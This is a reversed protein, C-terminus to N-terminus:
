RGSAGLKVDVQAWFQIGGGRLPNMAYDVIQVVANKRVVSVVNANSFNAIEERLNIDRNATLIDGINIANAGLANGNKDFFSTDIGTGADHLAIWGDSKLGNPKLLRETKDADMDQRWLHVDFGGTSSSLTIRPTNCNAINKWGYLAIVESSKAIADAELDVDYHTNVSKKEIISGAAKAIHEALLPRVGGHAQAQAAHQLQHALICIGGVNWIDMKDAFYIDNGLTIHDGHITDIETAYRIDHLDIGPYKGAIVGILIDPLKQWKGEAQHQLHSIYQDAIPAVVGYAFNATITSACANRDKLCSGLDEASIPGVELGGSGFVGASGPPTTGANLLASVVPVKCAARQAECIGSRTILACGGM